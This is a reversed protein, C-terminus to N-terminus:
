YFVQNGQPNWAIGSISECERDFVKASVGEVVVNAAASGVEGSCYNNSYNSHHKLDWIYVGGRSSGCALLQDDPSTECPAYFTNCEFGDARFERLGELTVGDFEYVRFVRM